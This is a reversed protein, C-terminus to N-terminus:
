VEEFTATVWRFVTPSGLVSRDSGDTWGLDRARVTRSAGGAVDGALTVNGAALTALLSEAEAPTFFRGSSAAGAIELTIERKEDIRDVLLSGDVARRRYEILTLSGRGEGERVLYATGNITAYSM